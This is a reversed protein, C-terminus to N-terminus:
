DRNDVGKRLDKRIVEYMECVHLARLEARLSEDGTDCLIGATASKRHTAYRTEFERVGKM